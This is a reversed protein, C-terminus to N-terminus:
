VQSLRQYVWANCWELGKPVLRPLREEVKRKAIEIMRDKPVKTIDKNEWIEFLVELDEIEKLLIVPFSLKKAWLDEEWDFLDDVMQFVVGWKMAYSWYEEAQKVGLRLLVESGLGFLEATKKRVVRFYNEWSFDEVAKIKEELLQGECLVCVASSGLEGVGLSAFIAQGKAFLWDGLVIASSIGFRRYLCERGRRNEGGDMIDDHILSALHIVETAMSVQKALNWWDTGLYESIEQRLASYICFTMKSRLFKGVWLSSIFENEDKLEPLSIKIEERLASKLEDLFLGFEEEVRAM